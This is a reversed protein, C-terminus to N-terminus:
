DLVPYVAFTSVGCLNGRRRVRIYGNEGWDKGWSNRLIWYAGDQPDEGYGVLVMAHKLDDENNTCEPDSYVGQFLAVM